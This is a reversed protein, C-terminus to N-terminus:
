CVAEVRLEETTFVAMDPRAGFRLLEKTLTNGDCRVLQYGIVRLHWWVPYEVHDMGHSTVLAKVSNFNDAAFTPTRESTRRVTLTLIPCRRLTCCYPRLSSIRRADVM